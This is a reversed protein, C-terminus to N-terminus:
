YPSYHNYGQWNHGNYIYQPSPQQVVQPSASLLCDTIPQPIGFSHEDGDSSGSYNSYQEYSGYGMPFNAVNLNEGFSNNSEVPSNLLNISNPIHQM